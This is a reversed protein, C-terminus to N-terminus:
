RAAKPAAVSGRRILKPRFIVTKEHLDPDDSASPRCLARLHM